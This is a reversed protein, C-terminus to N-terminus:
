GDTCYSCWNKKHTDLTASIALINGRLWLLKYLSKIKSLQTLETIPEEQEQDIDNKEPKIKKYDSIDIVKM